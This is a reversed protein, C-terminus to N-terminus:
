LLELCPDFHQEFDFATSIVRRLRTYLGLIIRSCNWYFSFTLAPSEERERGGASIRVCMMEKQDGSGEQSDRLQQMLGKVDGFGLLRSVFSQADFPEQVDNLSMLLLFFYM